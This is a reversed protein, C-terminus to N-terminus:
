STGGRRRSRRKDREHRRAFRQREARTYAGRFGWSEAKRDTAEEAHIDGHGAAVPSDAHGLVLHAFEHAVLRELREAAWRGFNPTFYVVRVIAEKMGPMVPVYYRWITGEVALPQCVVQPRLSFFLEFDDQPMALLVKRAAAFLRLELPRDKHDAAFAGSFGGHWWYDIEEDREEISEPESM